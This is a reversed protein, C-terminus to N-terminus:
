LGDEPFGRILREHKGVQGRLVDRTYTLVVVQYGGERQCADNPQQPNDTMHNPNGYQAWHEDSVHHAVFIDTQPDMLCPGAVNIIYHGAEEEEESDEERDIAEEQPEEEEETEQEADEESELEDKDGAQDDESRPAGAVPNDWINLFQQWMYGPANFNVGLLTRLGSKNLGIDSITAQSDTPSCFRTSGSGHSWRASKTPSPTTSDDTRTLAHPERNKFIKIEAWPADPVMDANPGLEEIYEPVKVEHLGTFGWPPPLVKKVLIKGLFFKSRLIDSLSQTEELTTTSSARDDVKESLEEDDGVLTSSRDDIETNMDPLAEESLKPYAFEASEKAQIDIPPETFEKLQVHNENEPEAVKDQKNPVEAEFPSRGFRPVNLSDLIMAKEAGDTNIRNHSDKQPDPNSPEQHPLDDDEVPKSDDSMEDDDDEDDHQESDDSMESDEEDEEVKEPWVKTAGGAGGHAIATSLSYTLPMNSNVQYPTLNLQEPIKFPACNKIPPRGEVPHDEFIKVKITLVQPAAEIKRLVTRPVRPECGLGPCDELTEPEGRFYDYLIFELSDHPNQKWPYFPVEVGWTEATTHEVHDCFNCTHKQVWDVKFLADLERNWNEYDIHGLDVDNRLNGEVWTFFKAADGNVTGAAFNVPDDIAAENSIRQIDANGQSIPIDPVFGTGWYEDVLNRYSCLICNAHVCQIAKHSRIWNLFLPTHM